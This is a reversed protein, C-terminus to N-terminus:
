HSIAQDLFQYLGLILRKTKVPFLKTFFISFGQRSPRRGRRCSGKRSPSRSPPRGTTAVQADVGYLIDTVLLWQPPFNWNFASIESKVCFNFMRTSFYLQQHKPFPTRGHHGVSITLVSTMAQNEWMHINDLAVLNIYRKSIYISYLAVIYEEKDKLLISPLGVNSISVKVIVM